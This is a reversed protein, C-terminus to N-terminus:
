IEHQDLLVWDMSAGIWPGLYLCFIHGGKYLGFMHGGGRMHQPLTVNICVSGPLIACFVNSGKSGFYKKPVMLNNVVGIEVGGWQYNNIM